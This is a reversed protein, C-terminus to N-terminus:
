RPANTVLVKPIKSEELQDLLRLLGDVPVIEELALRRFTAEKLASYRYVQEEPLDRRLETVIDM